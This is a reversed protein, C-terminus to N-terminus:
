SQKDIYYPQEDSYPRYGGIQCNAVIENLQKKVDNRANEMNKALKIIASRNKQALESINDFFVRYAEMGGALDIIKTEGMQDELRAIEFDIDKLKSIMNEVDTCRTNLRDWDKEKFMTEQESIVDQMMKMLNYKAELLEKLRNNRASM